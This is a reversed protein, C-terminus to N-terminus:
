LIRKTYTIYYYKKIVKYLNKLWERFEKILINNSFIIDYKAFM